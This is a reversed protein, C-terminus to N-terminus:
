DPAPRSSSTSAPPPTPGALVVDEKVGEPMASYSVDVGEVANAYTVSAKAAAESTAPLSQPTGPSPTGTAGRMTFAVSVGDRTARVPGSGLAAPLSLQVPGASNRLAGAEASPVLATDIPQWAGQDDRYHVPGGYFVTEFRGDERVFTASDATRREVVEVPESADQGESPLLEGAPAGEGQPSRNIEGPAFIEPTIPPSAGPPSEVVEQASAPPTIGAVMALLVCGVIVRRTWAAM